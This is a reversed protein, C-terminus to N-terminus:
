SPTLLKSDRSKTRVRVYVRAEAVISRALPGVLRAECRADSRLHIHAEAELGMRPDPYGVLCGQVQGM